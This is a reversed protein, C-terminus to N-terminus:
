KRRIVGSGANPAATGLYPEAPHRLWHPLPGTSSPVAPTTTAGEMEPAEVEVNPNSGANSKSAQPFSFMHAGYGLAHRPYRNHQGPRRNVNNYRRPYRQYYVRRTPQRGYRSLRPNHRSARAPQRQASRSRQLLYLRLRQTIYHRLKQRQTEQQRQQVRIRLARLFIEALFKRKQEPNLQGVKNAIAEDIAKRLAPSLLTPAPTTTSAAAAGHAGAAHAGGAAAAHALAQPQPRYQWHRPQQQGTQPPPRYQPAQPPRYQQSPQAQQYSSRPPPAHGWGFSVPQSQGLSVLHEDSRERALCRRFPPILKILTARFKSSMVVYILFNVSSNISWALFIMSFILLVLNHFNKFYEFEPVFMNTFAVVIEPTVCLVSIASVFLLMRTIKADSSTSQKSTMDERTRRARRLQIYTILSCTVVLATGLPK